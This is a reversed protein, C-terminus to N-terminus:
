PPYFFSSFAKNAESITPTRLETINKKTWFNNQGGFSLPLLFRLFVWNFLFFMQVMWRWKQPELWHFEIETRFSWGSLDRSELGTEVMLWRRKTPYCILLRSGKPIFRLFPWWGAWLHSVKLIGKSPIRFEQLNSVWVYSALFGGHNEMSFEQVTVKRWYVYSALFGGHKELVYIMSLVDLAMTSKRTSPRLNAPDMSGSLRTITAFKKDSTAPVHFFGLITVM